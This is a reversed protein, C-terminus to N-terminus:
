YNGGPLKSYHKIGPSAVVWYLTRGHNFIVKLNVGIGLIKKRLFYGWIASIQKLKYVGKVKKIVIYQGFMRYTCQRM